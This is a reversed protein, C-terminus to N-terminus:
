LFWTWTTVQVPYITVGPHPPRASLLASSDPQSSVTQLEESSHLSAPQEWTRLVREHLKQWREGSIVIEQADQEQLPIHVAWGPLEQEAMTTSFIDKMCLRMDLNSRLQTVWSNLEKFQNGWELCYIHFQTLFTLITASSPPHRSRFGQVGRKAKHFISHYLEPKHIHHHPDCDEPLITPQQTLKMYLTSHAAWTQM